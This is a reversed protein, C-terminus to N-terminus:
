LIDEMRLGAPEDPLGLMSRLTQNVYVVRGDRRASFFGVPADEVYLARPDVSSAASASVDMRRLRWLARSAGLPAVSAECQVPMHAEGLLIAPLVETRSLGSQV